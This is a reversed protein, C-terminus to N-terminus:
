GRWYQSSVQKARSLLIRFVMAFLPLGEFGTTSSRFSLSTASGLAARLTWRKSRLLLSSFPPLPGSGARAVRGLVCRVAEERPRQALRTRTPRPSARRVPIAIEFVQTRQAIQM